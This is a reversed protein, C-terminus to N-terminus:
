LLVLSGDLNVLGAWSHQLLILLAGTIAFLLNYMVVAHNNKVLYFGDRIHDLHLERKSLTQSLAISCLEM